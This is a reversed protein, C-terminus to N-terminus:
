VLAPDYFDVEVTCWYSGSPASYPKPDIVTVPPAGAGEAGGAGVPPVVIIPPPPIYVLYQPKVVAHKIHFDTYGLKIGEAVFERAKKAAVLTANPLSTDLVSFVKNRNTM